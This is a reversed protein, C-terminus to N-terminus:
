KTMVREIVNISTDIITRILEKIVTKSIHLQIPILVESLALESIFIDYTADTIYDLYVELETSSLEHYGNAKIHTLLTSEVKLMIKLLLGDTALKLCDNSRLRACTHEPDNLCETDFNISQMLELKYHKFKSIVFRNIEAIANDHIDYKDQQRRRIVADSLIQNEQAKVAKRERYRKFENYGIYLLIIVIAWINGSAIAKVLLSEM